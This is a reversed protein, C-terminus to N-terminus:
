SKPADTYLKAIEKISTYSGFVLAMLGFVSVLVNKWLRWRFQGLGHDWFTIVEIFAPVILGLISFCLAGILSIFPSITPVAVALVVTVPFLPTKYLFIFLSIIKKFSFVTTKYTITVDNGVKQLFRGDGDNFLVAKKRSSPPVPKELSNIVVTGVVPRYLGCDLDEGIHFDKFRM